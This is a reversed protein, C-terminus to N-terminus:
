SVPFLKLSNRLTARLDSCFNEHSKSGGWIVTTCHNTDFHTNKEAFKTQECLYLVPKGLGEAFGAEWYAGSNDHTLDVLVFAADRIKERMINDIVGPQAVDRMDILEFGLEKVAPKVIDKVFPDLTPDGFKLAIFGYSGALKGAREAEYKEWGDLTLGINIMNGVRNMAENLVGTILGREWLEKAISFAFEPNPAGIKSFFSNPFLEIPKGSDSVQDGIFRIINIAQQAPTPTKANDIFHDLWDTTIFPSAVGVKQNIRVFHSLSTRVKDTLKRSTRLLYDDLASGSVRFAGCVECNFAKGDFSGGHQTCTGGWKGQCIPCQVNTM